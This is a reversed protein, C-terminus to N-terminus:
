YGARIVTNSDLQYAIGFRPLLNGPGQSWLSHNQPSAFLLGGLVQFQSVALGPVPSKAYNALAQAAIPNADSTDFGRVSRNYRESVPSEYEYRLGANVTLKPTVKWDDQIYAGTYTNQIAYSASRTVQGGSPIGLLFSAFEQGIPAVSSNDLPGNTYTPLFQFGPSVDYGGNFGFSRYLRLEAGYHLDHNGRLMNVTGAFDHIMGTITGDGSNFNGFGSFTGTCAGTGSTTPAKTNM